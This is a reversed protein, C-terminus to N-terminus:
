NIAYISSNFKNKLHSIHEHWNLKNDIYLGLFKAFDNQKIYEDGIKINMNVPIPM